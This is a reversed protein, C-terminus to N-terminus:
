MDGNGDGDDKTILLHANYALQPFYNPLDLNPAILPAFIVSLHSAPTGADPARDSTEQLLAVVL